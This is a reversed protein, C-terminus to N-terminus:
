IQKQLPCYSYCEFLTENLHNLAKPSLTKSFNNEMPSLPLSPETTRSFPIKLFMKGM